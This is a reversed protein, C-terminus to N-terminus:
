MAARELWGEYRVLLGLVPMIAEVEFRYRGDRNTEQTHIRPLLAAPMPMGLVRVGVLMLGLGQADQQLTMALVVPGVRERLQSGAAWQTSVFRRAGFARTWVETDGRPTFTVSLPQDRGEPPLGLVTALGRAVASAGRRVDARGAWTCEAEVDHLARVESPLDDFREVLLRRYLATM